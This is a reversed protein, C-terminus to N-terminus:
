DHDAEEKGYNEAIRAAHDQCACPFPSVLEDSGRIAKAIGEAAWRAGAEFADRSLTGVWVVATLSADDVPYKAEAAERATTM